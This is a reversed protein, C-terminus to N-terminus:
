TSAWAINAYNLYSHIYSFYITTKGSIIFWYEQSIKKEITKTHDKWLINEDLMVGLFKVSSRRKIISNGIKLESMKDIKLPIKISYPATLKPWM